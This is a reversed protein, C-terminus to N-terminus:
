IRVVASFNKKKEPYYKTIIANQKESQLNQWKGMVPPWIDMSSKSSIPENM